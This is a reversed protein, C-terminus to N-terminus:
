TRKNKVIRWVASKLENYLYWIYTCRFTVSIGLEKLHKRTEKAKLRDGAKYALNMKREAYKLEIRCVWQKKEEEPMEQINQITETLLVIFNDCRRLNDEYSRVSRSHSDNHAVCKFLIEEIYGCKNSYALPLMLQWNQGERSEYIRNGPLVRKLAETRVMITAPVYVVNKEYILDSFYDDKGTPKKRALVGIRKDLDKYNVIEGECLVMGCEPNCLLYEVKRSVNEPLLIDDSDVWMLFEGDYLQLGTNIAAAQGRNEQYVCQYRIGREQFKLKYQNLIQETEDTSGDNIMILEINDYDQALVSELFNTVYKEGNYCPSIISVLHTM